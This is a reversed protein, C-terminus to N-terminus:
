HVYMYNLVPIAVQPCVHLKVCSSIPFLLLSDEM